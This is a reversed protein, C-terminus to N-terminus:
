QNIKFRDVMFMKGVHEGDDYDLFFQLEYLEIMYSWLIKIKKEIKEKTNMSILANLGITPNKLYSGYAKVFIM